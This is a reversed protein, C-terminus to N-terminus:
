SYCRCFMVLNKRDAELHSDKGMVSTQTKSPAYRQNLFQEKQEMEIQVMCSIYIRASSGGERFSFHFSFSRLSENMLVFSLTALVFNREGAHEVYIPFFPASRSKLLQFQIPFCNRSTITENLLQPIRFIIRLGLELGSSILFRHSIVAILQTSNRRLFVACDYTPEMESTNTNTYMFSKLYSTHVNKNLKEFHVPLDM